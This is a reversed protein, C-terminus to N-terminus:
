YLNSLSNRDDVGAFNYKYQNKLNMISSQLNVSDNFIQLGFAVGLAQSVSNNKAQSDSRCVASAASVNMAIIVHSQYRGNATPPLVVSFCDQSASNYTGMVIIQSDYYFQSCGPDGENLAQDYVVVTNSGSEFYNDATDIAWTSGINNQVCIYRTNFRKGTWPVSIAYASLAGASFCVVAMLFAVVKAAKSRVIRGLMPLGVKPPHNFWPRNM